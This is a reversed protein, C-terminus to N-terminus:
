LSVRVETLWVNRLPGLIVYAMNLLIDAERVSNMSITRWYILEYNSRMPYSGTSASQLEEDTQVDAGPSIEKEACEVDFDAGLCCSSSLLGIMQNLPPFQALRRVFKATEMLVDLDVEHEFYHPDIEPEDTPNNSTIHQM